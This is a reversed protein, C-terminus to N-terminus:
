KNIQVISIIAEPEKRGGGHTEHARSALLLALLYKSPGAHPLLAFCGRPVPLTPLKKHSCCLQSLFTKKLFKISIYNICLITCM